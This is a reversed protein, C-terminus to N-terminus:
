PVQELPDLRNQAPSSLMPTLTAKLVSYLHLIGERSSGTIYRNTCHLISNAKKTVLAYQPIRNLRELLDNNTGWDAHNSDLATFKAEM